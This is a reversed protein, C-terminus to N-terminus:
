FDRLAKAVQRPIKLILWLLAAAPGEKIGEREWKQLTRFNLKFREAFALQSLGTAKRALKVETPKLDRM